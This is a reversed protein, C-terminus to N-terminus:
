VGEDRAGGDRHVRVEGSARRLGKPQGLERSYMESRLTSGQGGPTTSMSNHGGPIKCGATQMRVSSGVVEQQTGWGKDAAGDEGLQYQVMATGDGDRPQAQTAVGQLGGLM